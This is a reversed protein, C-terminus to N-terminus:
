APRRGTGGPAGAPAGSSGAGLARIREFLLAKFGARDLEFGVRANPPRGTVGRLDVVTRGRTHTGGLEVAVFLSRTRVLDPRFVAAVAVADHIAAGGFDPYVRDYFRNFYDLLDAVLRGVPTGLARYAEGDQRGLIAQHTVDLGIMTVDLGSTFVVHAAEPDVWVNFEAAPTINGEGASGGMLVVRGIKERIRPARLLAMAVNTLPGTPVLVLPEASALCTEILLDVAHRPDPAFAPEPLVPGELGSEGHVHPATVLEAVLPRDMGAAVPVHTVGAVTLVQLANRTTKDLTQNGAVTTIARVELEPSGLALLMAIADDHGPDCDLIIPIAM